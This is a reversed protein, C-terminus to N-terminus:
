HDASLVLILVHVKSAFLDNRKTFSIPHGARGNAFTGSAHASFHDEFERVAKDSCGRASKVQVTLCLNLSCQLLYTAVIRHDEQSCWCRFAAGQIGFGHRGTIRCPSTREGSRIEVKGDVVDSLVLNGLLNFGRDIFRLDSESFHGQVNLVDRFGYM